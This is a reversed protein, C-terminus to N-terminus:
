IGTARPLLRRPAGVGRVRAHVRHVRLVGDAGHGDLLLRREAHVGRTDEM